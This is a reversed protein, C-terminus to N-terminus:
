RVRLTIDVESNIFEFAGQYGKAVGVEISGLEYLRKKDNTEKKAENIANSVSSNAQNIDTYYFNTVPNDSALRLLEAASRTTDNAKASLYQGIRQRENQVGEELCRDRGTGFGIILSVIGVGCIGLIKKIPQYSVM